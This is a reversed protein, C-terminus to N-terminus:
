SIHSCVSPALCLYCKIGNSLSRQICCAALGRRTQHKEGRESNLDLIGETAWHNFKSGSFAPMCRVSICPGSGVVLHRILEDTLMTPIVFDPVTNYKKYSWLLSYLSVKSPIELSSTFTSMVKIM